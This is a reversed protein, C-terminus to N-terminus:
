NKAVPEADIAGTFNGEHKAFQRLEDFIYKPLKACFEKAADASFPVEAGEGNVVGRWDRIILSAFLKRDMDRARHEVAPDTSAAIGKAQYARVMDVRQRQTANLYAKNTDGAHVVDLEPNGELHYCTWTAIKDAEVELKKLHDFM